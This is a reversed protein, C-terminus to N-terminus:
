QDLSDNGNLVYFNVCAIFSFTQKRGLYGMLQCVFRPSVQEAIRALRPTSVSRTWRQHKYSMGPLVLMIHCLMQTWWGSILFARVSPNGAGRIALDAVLAGQEDHGAEKVVPECRVPNWVLSALDGVADRVENHRRTM